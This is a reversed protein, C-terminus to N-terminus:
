ISSQFAVLLHRAHAIHIQSKLCRRYKRNINFGDIIRSKKSFYFCKTIEDHFRWRFLWVIDLVILTKAIENIAMDSQYLTEDNVCIALRDPAIVELHVSDLKGQLGKWWGPKVCDSVFVARVVTSPSDQM